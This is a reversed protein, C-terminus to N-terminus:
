VDILMISSRCIILAVAHSSPPKEGAQVGALQLPKPSGFIIIRLIQVQLIGIRSVLKERVRVISRKEWARWSGAHRAHPPCM